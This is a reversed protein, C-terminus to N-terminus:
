SPLLACACASALRMCFSNRAPAHQLFRSGPDATIWLPVLDAILTTPRPAASTDSRLLRGAHLARQARLVGQREARCMWLLLQLGRTRDIPSLLVISLLGRLFHLAPVSHPEDLRSLPHLRHVIHM